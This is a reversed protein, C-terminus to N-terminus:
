ARPAVERCASEDAFFWYRGDSSQDRWYTGKCDPCYYMKSGMRLLRTLKKGENEDSMIAQDIGDLKMIRDESWLPVRTAEEHGKICTKTQRRWDLNQHISQLSIESSEFRVRAKSTPVFKDFERKNDRSAQLEEKSPMNVDESQKMSSRVEDSARRFRQKWLSRKREKDTSYETSERASEVNEWLEALMSKTITDFDDQASESNSFSVPNDRIGKWLFRPVKYGGKKNAYSKIIEPGEMLSIWQKGKFDGGFTQLEIRDGFEVEARCDDGEGECEKRLGYIGSNKCMVHSVDAGLTASTYYGKTGNQMDLVQKDEWKPEGNDDLCIPWLKLVRDPNFIGTSGDYDSSRGLKCITRVLKAMTRWDGMMWPPGVEKKEWGFGYEIDILAELGVPVGDLIKEIRGSLSQSERGSGSLFDEAYSLERDLIELMNADDGNNSTLPILGYSILLKTRVDEATSILQAPRRNDRNGLESLAQHIIVFRRRSDDEM